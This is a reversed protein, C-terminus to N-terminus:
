KMWPKGDIFSLNFLEISIGGLIKEEIYTAVLLKALWLCELIYTEVFRGCNIGQLFILVELLVLM